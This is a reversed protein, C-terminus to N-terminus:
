GEGVLAEIEDAFRRAEAAQEPRRLADACQRVVRAVDPACSRCYVVTCRGGKRLSPPIDTAAIDGPGGCSVCRLVEGADTVRAALMPYVEPPLIGRERLIAQLRRKAALDRHVADHCEVDLCCLNWPENPGGAGRTHWAHHVHVAERGCLVCLGGDRLVVVRRVAAPIPKLGRSRASTSSSRANPVPSSQRQAAAASRVRSRLPTKRRLPTQRM